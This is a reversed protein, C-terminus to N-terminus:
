PREAVIRRAEEELQDLRIRVVKKAEEPSVQRDIEKVEQGCEEVFVGYENNELDRKVFYTAGYAKLYWCDPSAQDQESSPMKSWILPRGVPKSVILKAAEEISRLRERAARKARDLTPFDGVVKYGVALFYPRDESARLEITFRREYADLLWSSLGAPRWRQKGSRM